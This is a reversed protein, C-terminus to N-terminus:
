SEDQEPEPVEQGQLKAIVAPLTAQINLLVALALQEDDKNAALTLNISARTLYDKAKKNM